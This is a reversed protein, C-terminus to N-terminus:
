TGGGKHLAALAVLTQDTSAVNHSNRVADKVSTMATLFDGLLCHSNSGIGVHSRLSMHLTVAGTM